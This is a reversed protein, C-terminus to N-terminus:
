QETTAQPASSTASAPVAVATAPTTKTIIEEAFKNTDLDPTGVRGSVQVYASAIKERFPSDVSAVRFYPETGEAVNVLAVQAFPILELNKLNACMTPLVELFEPLPLYGGIQDSRLLVPLRERKKNAKAQGLQAASLFTEIDECKATLIHSVADGRAAVLDCSPTLIIRYSSPQSQSTGRAQLIDGTLLTTFPSPCIFQEWARLPHGDLSYDLNAAIRRRTIRGIIEARQDANDSASWAVNCVDRLCNRTASDIQARIGLLTRIQPEFEQIFRTVQTDSDIGKKCFRIFHHNPLGLQEAEAKATYVVFPCFHNRWVEDSIATGRNDHLGEFIDLVIADPILEVIKAYATNFVGHTLVEVGSIAAELTTKLTEAVTPNDDIILVRM